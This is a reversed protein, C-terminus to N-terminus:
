DPQPFPRPNCPGPNHVCNAHIGENKRIHDLRTIRSSRTSRFFSAMLRFTFFFLGFSGLYIWIGISTRNKIAASLISAKIPFTALIPLGAITLQAILLGSSLFPYRRAFGQLVKLDMSGNYEEILSMSYGWLWFGLARGPLLM